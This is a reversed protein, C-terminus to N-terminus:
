CLHRDIKQRPQGCYTTTHGVSICLQEDIGCPTTSQGGTSHMLYLFLPLFLCNALRATSRAPYLSLTLRYSDLCSVSPRIM